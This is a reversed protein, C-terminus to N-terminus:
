SGFRRPFPPALQWIEIGIVRGSFQHGAARARICGLLRDLIPAREEATLFLEDRGYYPTHFYFM